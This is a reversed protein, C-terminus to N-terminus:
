ESFYSATGKKRQSPREDFWLASFTYAGDSFILKESGWAHANAVEVDGADGPAVEFGADIDIPTYGHYIVTRGDVDHVHASAYIFGKHHQLL